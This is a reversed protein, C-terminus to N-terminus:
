AENRNDHSSDLLCYVAAAIVMGNLAPIGFTLMRIHLFPLYDFGALAVFSGALFAIVAPFSFRAPQKLRNAGLLHSTLIIAGCPPIFVNLITLWNCFNNYLWIATLTGLLGVIPVLRHKAVKTINSLGLGATYIANDNTTWINLGLVLIAPVLLGQLQLVESIDQKGYITGAIAGFFFMLSNGIFFAIATAWVAQRPNKAFRVFDPTCTGGSIFSGIGLSIALWISISTSLGTQPDVPVHNVLTQWGNNELLAMIASVGGLVAISPVAIVSIVHISRIGFYASSTMLLGALATILVLCHLPVTVGTALTLYQGSMLWTGQLSSIGKLLLTTPISFMAVGVGFWGIQTFALIGSPIFSGIKGFANHALLHISLGTRAAVYALASCYVSLIVNGLMVATVFKGFSLGSAIKVGVWMSASFFTFGMMILLMPLFGRRESSDVPSHEFENSLKIKM